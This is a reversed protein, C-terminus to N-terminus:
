NRLKGSSMSHLTSCPILQLLILSTKILRHVVCIPGIFSAHTKQLLNPWLITVTSFHAVYFFRVLSINTVYGVKKPLSNFISIGLHLSPADLLPTAAKLSIGHMEFSGKLYAKFTFSGFADSHLRLTSLLGETQLQFAKQDKRLNRLLDKQLHLFPASLHVNEEECEGPFDTIMLACNRATNSNQGGRGHRQHGCQPPIFM